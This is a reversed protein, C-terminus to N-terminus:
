NETEKVNCKAKGVRFQILIEDGKKLKQSSKIIENTNSSYTISYGRDLVKLPSLSDLKGSVGSLEMYTRDVTSKLILKLNADFQKLYTELLELKNKISNNCRTKLSKLEKILDSKDKVALEGAMSPTAARLDAVLDVITIDTEHGVASILPVPSSVIKRAVSEENFVWLDEASGGGRTLIILDIEKIKYIKDLANVIESPANEGQVRTPSIIIETNSFRRGIVKIIDKIAAGTPSTVVGIKRSLFPLSKKRQPDFLGEAQLKEKLQELALAQAGTGKPEIYRINIQYIGQKEYVGIQGCCIVEM